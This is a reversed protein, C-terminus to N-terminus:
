KRNPCTDRLQCKHCQCVPQKPGRYREKQPPTMMRNAKLQEVIGNESRDLKLAIESLGVGEDFLIVLTRKEDETWYKGDQASKEAGSRRAQLKQQKKKSM